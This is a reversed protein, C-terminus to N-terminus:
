FNRKNIFIKVVEGNRIVKGQVIKGDKMEGAVITDGPQAQFQEGTSASTLTTPTSIPITQPGSPHSEETLGSKSKEMETSASKNIKNGVNNDDYAKKYEEFTNYIDHLPRNRIQPYPAKGKLSMGEYCEITINKSWANQLVEEETYPEGTLPNFANYIKDRSHGGLNGIGEEHPLVPYIIIKNGIQNDTLISGSVISGHNVYNTIDLQKSHDIDKIKVGPADFTIVEDGYYYGGLQAIAGGLSHGTQLYTYNKGYHNKVCNIFKEASKYQSIVANNFRIIPINGPLLSIIEIGTAIQFDTELDKTDTLETGRHSITIKKNITDLLACGAYGTKSDEYFGNDNICDIDNNTLKRVGRLMPFLHDDYAASALLFVNLPTYNVKINSVKEISNSPKNKLGSSLEHFECGVANEAFRTMEGPATSNTRKSKTTIYGIVNNNGNLENGLYWGDETIIGDSIGNIASYDGNVSKNDLLNQMSLLYKKNTAAVVITDGKKLVDQKQYEGIKDGLFVDDKWFGDDTSGDKYTLVGYGNYMGNKFAGEYKVKDKHDPKYYYTGNGDFQNNKFTGEYKAENPFYYIGNIRQGNSFNGVFYGGDTYTEKGKGDPYQISTNDVMKTKCEGVYHSGTKQDTFECQCKVQVSNFIGFLCISLFIYNTKAM